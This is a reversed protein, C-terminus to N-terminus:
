NENKMQANVAFKSILDELLLAQSTFILIDGDKLFEEDRGLEIGIYNDGLLGSTLISAASDIPLDTDSNITMEVVPLYELNDNQNLMIKTVKGIKVGGITIKSRIKLGGINRFVARVVYTDKLKYFDSLGSVQISLMFLASIALFVFFGVLIEINRIKM